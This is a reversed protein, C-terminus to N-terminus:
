DEEVEIREAAWDINFKVIKAPNGALICNSEKPSKTVVARTAIVSNAEICVGKLITAGNGIWVHDSIKVDASPNIRKGIEKQIISHSDGTRITINASLLCRTGIEINKGEIAAFHTPGSIITGEGITIEGGSDEIVIEVNELYALKGIVVRNGSGTISIHCNVLRGLDEVEVLNDNGFIEIRCKRCLGKNLFMNGKIIKIYNIFPLKNILALFVRSVKPFEQVLSKIYEKM